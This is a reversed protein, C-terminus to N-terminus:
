RTVTSRRASIGGFSYGGDKTKVPILSSTRDQKERVRREWKHVRTTLDPMALPLASLYSDLHSIVCNCLRCHAGMGVWIYIYIYM